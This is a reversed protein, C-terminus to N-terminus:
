GKWGVATLGDEPGNASFIASERASVTRTWAKSLTSRLIRSIIQAVSSRDALLYKAVTEDCHQHVSSFQVYSYSFGYKGSAFSRGFAQLIDKTQDPSHIRAM